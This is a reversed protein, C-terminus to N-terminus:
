QNPASQQRLTTVLGAIAEPRFCMQAVDPPRRAEPLTGRLAQDLTQAFAEPTDALHVLEKVSQPLGGVGTPTSILHCGVQLMEITKINVGSGAKIPNILVKAQWYLPWVEAPNPVITVGPCSAAASILDPHPNSGAITVEATPNLVRVRPWVETLLWMLGQVNNPTHLNGVYLASGPSLRFTPEVKENRPPVTVIPPLWKGESVGRQKWYALDDMSIDFVCRASRLNALEYRELGICTMWLRFREGLGRALQRQRNMYRFEINHSRVWRPVRLCRELRCATAGSWLNDQWIGQPKFREVRPLLTRWIAQSPFRSSVHSPWIPLLLLRRLLAAFGVEIPLVILDDVYERVVNEHEPLPKGGWLPSFWCILQLQAGQQRLAKIRNWTDARGGHNPPYPFEGALVTLRLPTQTNM